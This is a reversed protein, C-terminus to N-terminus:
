AQLVEVLKIEFILDKGALPHNLDFTVGVESIDTVTVNTASGEPSRMQLVMGIQLDIDGPIRSKDIVGVLEDRFPGYADESIISVKRSEGESMGIVGNEFGPIVMGKGITFEFPERELSSDFVTGDSLTGSYHVKVKDNMKAQAM